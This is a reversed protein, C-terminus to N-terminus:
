QSLLVQKLNVDCPAYIMQNVLVRFENRKTIPVYAEAFMCTGDQTIVVKFLYNVGETIQQTYQVPRYLPYTYRQQGEPAMYKIAMALLWERSHKEVKQIQGFGGTVTM